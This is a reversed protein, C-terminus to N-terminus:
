NTVTQFETDKSASLNAPKQSEALKPCRKAFHGYVHYFNCKFPIQKYDLEQIHSWEGLTLKLAKPPGKELNLEVYIHACRYQGGKPKATDLYRGLKNGIDILAGM